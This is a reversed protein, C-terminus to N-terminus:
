SQVFGNAVALPSLDTIHGNEMNSQFVIKSARVRQSTFEHTLDEAFLLITCNIIIVFFVFISVHCDSCVQATKIPLIM